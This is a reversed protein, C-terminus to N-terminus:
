TKEQKRNAQASTLKQPNIPRGQQRLEFYVLANDSGTESVGVPEGAALKAGVVTDIRGLGAILSHYGGRHEIILIRRYKQFPGAFRVKGALPTTVTAGPRTTFTVGKAIAGLDDKEGFGTRITGNVPQPVHSPLTYRSSKPELKGAALRNASDVTGADDDEDDLRPKQRIKAVLEELNKAEQALRAVEREQSKRSEETKKYIAQRDKLLKDLEEQKKNFVSLEKQNQEKETTLANELRSLESLDARAERSQDQLAPLLSKMLHSTRAATLPPQQMLMLTTPTREYRRAAGLLDQLSSEDRYLRKLTQRREENLDALKKDSLALDGEAQRLQGGAKVLKGKIGDVEAALKKAKAATEKQAKQTAALEAKVDRPASAAHAAPVTALAALTLGLWAARHFNM